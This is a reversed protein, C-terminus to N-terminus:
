RLEVRVEADFLLETEIGSETTRLDGARVNSVDGQLWTGPAVERNIAQVLGNELADFQPSLDVQGQSEVAEALAKEGLGSMARALRSQTEVTTVVDRLRISRGDPQLEARALVYAIGDLLGSVGMEVQVAHGQPSARVSDIRLGTRGMISLETGVLEESLSQGVEDWTAVLPLRMHLRPAPVSGVVLAPPASTESAAPRALTVEPDLTFGIRAEIADGAGGIPGAVAGRPRLVLWTGPRLEFPAALAQWFDAFRHRAAGGEGIARDLAEATAQLRGALGAELAPGLDTGDPLRCPDVLKPPAFRTSTAFTWSEGWSIEARAEIRARRPWQEGYGCSGSLTEGSKRTVEARLRYQVEDFSIELSGDGAVIRAPGRFFYIQYRLRSGDPLPKAEAWESERDTEVPFAERIAPQLLAVPVRVPLTLSAPGSAGQAGTSVAASVFGVAM